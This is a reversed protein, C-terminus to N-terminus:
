SRRACGMTITLCYKGEMIGEQDKNELGDDGVVDDDDLDDGVVDDDGDHDDQADWLLPRGGLSEGTILQAHRDGQAVCVWLHYDEHNQNDNQYYSLCFKFM